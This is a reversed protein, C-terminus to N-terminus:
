KTSSKKKCLVTQLEGKRTLSCFLKYIPAFLLFFVSPIKIWKIGCDDLMSNLVVPIHTLVGYPKAQIVDLGTSELLLIASQPTHHYLHRPLDLSPFNRLSLQALWSDICPFNLVLIGGPKLIRYCEALVERPQLLHEFVHEMRICDFSSEPYENELFNGGIVHIGESVLRSVNDRNADIDYGHLQTYGLKAMSLLWDGSGYGLELIRSNRSLQLPIGLTFSVTKGTIWETAMGLTQRISARLGKTDYTAYRCKSVYHKLSGRGGVPDEARFSYIAYDDYFMNLRKWSPEPDVFGLGCDRCKLLRYKWEKEEGEVERSFSLNDLLVVIDDGNCIDCNKM